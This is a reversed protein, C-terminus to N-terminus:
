INKGNLSFNYREFKKNFIKIRNEANPLGIPIRETLRSQIAADIINPRNTAAIVFIKQEGSTMGEIEQLFQNVMDLNYSDSVGGGIDRSPFVTDAEDIFMITPANARAEDFIRKVKGSTQGVYEGKLDSLKPAMFYCNKENALAKVLQTKGTGPPGTLIFGKRYDKSEKSNLFADIANIVNEKEEENIIVDDLQVKEATIREIAIEFDISNIRKKSTDIVIADLVQLAERLSKKSASVAQSVDNLQAFLDLQIGNNEFNTVGLFRLLYAYKIEDASPNGLFIVNSGKTEFNYKRVLETDELSVLTYCEEIKYFDKLAKIYVLSDNNNSSYLKGMWEFDEFFVVTKKTSINKDQAHMKIIGIQNLLNVHNSELSQKLRGAEGNESSKQLRPDTEGEGEEEDDPMENDSKSALTLYNSSIDILTSQQKRLVQVGDTSILAFIECDERSLFYTKLIDRLSLIGDYIDELFCDKIGDGYLFFFKKGKDLAKKLPDSVRKNILFIVEEDVFSEYM